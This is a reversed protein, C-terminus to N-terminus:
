LEFNEGQSFSLLSKEGSDMSMSGKGEDANSNYLIVSQILMMQRGSEDTLSGCDKSIIDM